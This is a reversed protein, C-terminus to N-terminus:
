EIAIWFLGTSHKYVTERNDHFEHSHTGSISMVSRVNRLLHNGASPEQAHVRETKPQKKEGNYVGRTPRCSPRSRGTVMM